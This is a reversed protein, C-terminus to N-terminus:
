DFDTLIQCKELRKEVPFYLAVSQVLVFKKDNILGPYICRQYFYKPQELLREINESLFVAEFCAM